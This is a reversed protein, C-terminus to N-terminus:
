SQLYVGGSAALGANVHLFIFLMLKFIDLKLTSISYRESQKLNRPFISRVLSIRRSFSLSEFNTCHQAGKKLTAGRAYLSLDDVSIAETWSTLQFLTSNLILVRAKYITLSKHRHSLTSMFSVKSVISNLTRKEICIKLTWLRAEWKGQFDAPLSIKLNLDQHAKQSM